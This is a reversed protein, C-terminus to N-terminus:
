QSWEWWLVMVNPFSTIDYRTSNNIFLQLNFMHLRSPAVVCACWDLVALFCLSMFTGAWDMTNFFFSNKSFLQSTQLYLHFSPQSKIWFWAFYLFCKNLKKKRLSSLFLTKYLITTVKPNKGGVGEAASDPRQGHRGRGGSQLPFLCANSM